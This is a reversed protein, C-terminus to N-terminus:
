LIILPPLKPISKVVVTEKTIDIIMISKQDSTEGLYVETSSTAIQTVLEFSITLHTFKGEDVKALIKQSLRETKEKIMQEACSLKLGMDTYLISLRSRVYCTLTGPEIVLSSSM